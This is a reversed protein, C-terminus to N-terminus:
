NERSKKLIDIKGSVFYFERVDGQGQLIKKGSWVTNRVLPLGAVRYSSHVHIHRKYFFFHKLSQWM